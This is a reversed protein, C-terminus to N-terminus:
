PGGEIVRDLQAAADADQQEWTDAAHRLNAALDAHAEAQQQYCASRQELLERGAACLDAFIPGLSELSAMIDGHESPIARLQEATEHHHHAAARLEDPVVHIREAM